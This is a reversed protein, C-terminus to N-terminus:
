THEILHKKKKHISKAKELLFFVRTYAHTERFNRPTSFKKQNKNIRSDCILDM